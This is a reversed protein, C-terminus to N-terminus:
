MNLKMMELSEHTGLGHTPKSRSFRSHESSCHFYLSTFFPFFLVGPWTLHGFINSPTLFSSLRPPWHPLSLSCLFHISLCVSSPSSLWAKFDRWAVTHLSFTYRTFPLTFCSGRERVCVRERMHVCWVSSGGKGEWGRDRHEMGRDEGLYCFTM